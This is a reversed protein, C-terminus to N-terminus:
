SFYEEPLDSKRRQKNNELQKKYIQTIAKGVETNKKIERYAIMGLRFLERIKNSPFSWRLRNCTRCIPLYNSIDDKGGQAL